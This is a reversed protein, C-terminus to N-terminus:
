PVPDEKELETSIKGVDPTTGSESSSGRKSAEAELHSILALSDAYSIGLIEAHWSVYGEREQSSKALKQYRAADDQMRKSLEAWEGKGYAKELLTRGRKVRARTTPHDNKIASSKTPTDKTQEAIKGYSLGQVDRLEAALVDRAADEIKPRLKGEPTGYEAFEVVKRCARLAEHVYLSLHEILSVREDESLDDLHPRYLRLVDEVLGLAQEIAPHADFPEAGKLEPERLLKAFADLAEELEDNSSPHSFGLREFEERRRKILRASLHAREVVRERHLAKAHEIMLAAIIAEDSSSAKSFVKLSKYAQKPLAREGVQLWVTQGNDLVVSRAEGPDPDKRVYFPDHSVKTPPALTDGGQPSLGKESLRRMLRRAVQHLGKETPPDLQEIKELERVFEEYTPPAEQNLLREREREIEDM